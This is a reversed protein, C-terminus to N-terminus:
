MCPELIYILKVYFAIGSGRIYEEVEVHGGGGEVHHFVFCLKTPIIRRLTSSYLLYSVLKAGRTWQIRTWIILTWLFLRVYYIEILIHM